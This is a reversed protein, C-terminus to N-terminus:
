PLLDGDMDLELEFTAAEKHTFGESLSTITAIGSSIRTGDVYQRTVTVQTNAQIHSLAEAQSLDSTLYLASISIKVDQISTMNTMAVDGKADTPIADATRNITFSQEGSVAIPTGGALHLAISQGSGKDADAM